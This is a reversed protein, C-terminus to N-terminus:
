PHQSTPMEAFPIVQLNLEPKIEWCPAPLVLPAGTPHGNVTTIPTQAEVETMDKNINTLREVLTCWLSKQLLQKASYSTSLNPRIHEPNYLRSSEGFSM